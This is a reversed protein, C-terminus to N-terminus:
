LQTYPLFVEAGFAGSNPALRDYNDTEPVSPGGELM